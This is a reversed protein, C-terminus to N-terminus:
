EFLVIVETTRCTPRICHATRGPSCSLGKGEMDVPDLDVDNDALIKELEVPEEPLEEDGM